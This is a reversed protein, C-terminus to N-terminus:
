DYLFMMPLVRMISASFNSFFERFICEGWLIRQSAQLLCSVGGRTPDKLAKRFDQIQADGGSVAHQLM